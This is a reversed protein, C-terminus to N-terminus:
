RGRSARASDSRRRVMRSALRISVTGSRARRAVCGHLVDAHRRENYPRAIEKLAEASRQITVNRRVELDRMWSRSLRGYRRWLLGRGPAFVLALLFFFTCVLVIAAGSAVSVYYSLYLGIVASFAGVAAAIAMM